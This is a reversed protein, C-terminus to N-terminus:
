APPSGIEEAGRPMSLFLPPETAVPPLHGHRLFAPKTCSARKYPGSRPRQLESQLGSTPQGYDRLSRKPVTVVVTAVEDRRPPTSPQKGLRAVEKFNCMGKCAGKLRLISMGLRSQYNLPELSNEDPSRRIALDPLLLLVDVPSAVLDRLENRIKM